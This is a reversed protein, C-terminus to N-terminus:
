LSLLAQKKKKKPSLDRWLLFVSLLIKGGSSYQANLPRLDAALNKQSKETPSPSSPRSTQLLAGKDLTHQCTLAPHAPPFFCRSELTHHAELIFTQLEM